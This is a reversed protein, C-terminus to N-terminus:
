APSPEDAGDVTRAPRPRAHRRGVGGVDVAAALREPTAERRRLLGSVGTEVAVLLGADDLESVVLVVRPCGGRQVAHVTRARTRAWRTSSSWPSKPVTSTLAM